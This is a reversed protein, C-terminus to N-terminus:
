PTDKGFSLTNDPTYASSSSTITIVGNHRYINSKESEKKSGIKNILDQIDENIESIARDFLVKNITEIPPAYVIHRDLNANITEIAYLYRYAFETVNIYIYGNHDKYFVKGKEVRDHEVFYRLGIKPMGQHIVGCRVIAYLFEALSNPILMKEQMFKISRVKSGTEFGYCIGGLNDIGSLIEKLLIGACNIKEMLLEDINGKSYKIVSKEFFEKVKDEM